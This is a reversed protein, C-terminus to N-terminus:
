RRRRLLALMGFGGLLATSPEPVAGFPTDGDTYLAINSFNLDVAETDSIISVGQYSSNGSRWMGWPTFQSAESAGLDPNIYM